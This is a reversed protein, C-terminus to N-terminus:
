KVDSFIESIIDETLVSELEDVSEDIIKQQEPSSVQAGTNEVSIDSKVEEQSTEENEPESEPIVEENITNETNDEKNEDELEVPTEQKVPTDNTDSPAEQKQFCSSLGLILVFLAIIYTYKM